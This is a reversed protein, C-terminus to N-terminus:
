VAGAAFAAAFLAAMIIICMNLYFVAPVRKEEGGEEFARKLTVIVIYAGGCIVAPAVFMAMLGAHDTYAAAFRMIIVFYALGCILAFILRPSTKRLMDTIKGNFKDM